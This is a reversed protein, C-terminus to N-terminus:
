NFKIKYEEGDSMKDVLMVIQHLYLLCFEDSMENFFLYINWKAFTKNIILKM